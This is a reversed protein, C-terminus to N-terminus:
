SRQAVRPPFPPDAARLDDAGASPALQLASGYRDADAPDLGDDTILQDVEDLGAVRVLARQDFKSSDACVVTRDGARIMAQKVPVEISNTNTIGADPDIADAGLFTIDVQMEDLFAVSAQGILTYVSGLLEGGAVILRVGPIDALTKATRLDNTVVTIDRKRYLGVAIQYTTSGSDLLISAGDEVLDLAASAIARKQQLREGQKVAYPIDAPADSAPRAGGHVRVIQRAQEMAFLDRRITSADVALDAALQRAEAYGSDLVRRLIERRRQSTFM